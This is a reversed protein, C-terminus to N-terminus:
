AKENLYNKNASLFILEEGNEPILKCRSPCYIRGAKSFLRESSASTAMMLIYKEALKALRPFKVQNVKYWAFPDSFRGMTLRFNDLEVVEDDVSEQPRSFDFFSRESAPEPQKASCPNGVMESKIREHLRRVERDTFDQGHKYRIHSCTQSM